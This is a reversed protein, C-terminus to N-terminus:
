LMNQDIIEQAIDGLRNALRASEQHDLNHVIVGTEPDVVKFSFFGSIEDQKIQLPQGYEKILKSMAAAEVGGLGGATEEGPFNLGLNNVIEATIKEIILKRRIGISTNIQEYPLTEHAIRARALRQGKSLQKAYTRLVNQVQYTSIAM